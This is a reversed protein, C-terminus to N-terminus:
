GVIVEVTKQGSLWSAHGQTALDNAHQAQTNYAEIFDKSLNQQVIYNRAADYLDPDYPFTALTRELTALSEDTRGLASLSATRYLGLAAVKDDWGETTDIVAAHDGLSVATMAVQSRMSADNAFLPEGQVLATAQDIESRACSVQM